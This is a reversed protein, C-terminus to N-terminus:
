GNENEKELKVKKGDAKLCLYCIFGSTFGNNVTVKCGNQFLKNLRKENYIVNCEPCKWV